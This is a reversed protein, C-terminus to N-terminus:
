TTIFGLHRDDQSYQLHYQFEWYSDDRDHVLSCRELTLVMMGDLQQPVVCYMLKKAIGFQIHGGLPGPNLQWQGEKSANCSCLTERLILKGTTPVICKGDHLFQGYKDITFQNEPLIRHRFCRYSLTLVGGSTATICSHTLANEIEGYNVADKTPIKMDPTIVKLFWRFSKSRLRQRLRKREKISDLDSVTFEPMIAEYRQTALFIEKYDDMWVEAVRMLNKRLINQFDEQFRFPGSKFVHGVKSCPVTLIRGGTMWTKFSLELHEGGWIQLEPDFGGTSMFHERWVAIACGVLVPTPIPDAMTRLVQQLYDPKFFWSYRLDWGFGGVFTTEKEESFNLTKADVSVVDPQVITAPGGNVLQELLPELWGVNVEMHSDLFVIVEGEAVSAGIMRSRSLGQRHNNRMVKVRSDLIKFYDDLRKDLFSHESKDDVIIIEKLLEKPTRALLSHVHRLLTSLAENYMPSVITVTPLTSMNYGTKKCDDPRTDPLQRLVPIKDSVDVNFGFSDSSSINQTKLLYHRTRRLLEEKHSPSSDLLARFHVQANDNTKGQAM